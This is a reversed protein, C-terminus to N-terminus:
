SSRPTPCRPWGPSPGAPCPRLADLPPQSCLQRRGAARPADCPSAVALVGAAGSVEQAGGLAGGARGSPVVGGARGSPRWGRARGLGRRRGAGVARARAHGGRRGAAAAGGRRGARAAAGGRPAGQGGSGGRRGGRSSVARPRRVPALHRAAAPPARRRGPRVLDGPARGAPAPRRRRPRPRRAALPLAAAQPQRGGARLRRGPGAGRLEPGAAAFPPLRCRCRSPVPVPSYVPLCGRPCAGRRGAAASRGVVSVELTLPEHELQPQVLPLLLARAAAPGLQAAAAAVFRVAAARVVTCGSRLLRSDCLRRAAALAHRQRLLGRACLAALLDAAQAAAAPDPDGLMRELFPLLTFAVGDPGLAGCVGGLGEYLAGRVEWERSNFLTLLAPLLGDAAGRRGLAAALEALRPLLALKPEVRPGVLVDHVAREVRARLAAVDADFSAEGPAPAPADGGGGAGRRQLGELLARARAALPGLAAAYEAQVAAEAEAPVLSLSPLLYDAFVRAEGAPLGRVAALLPPLARLAACRVAAAPAEAAAAVLHPLARQLRTEDDGCRAACDALQTLLRARAGQSRCGRVASSLLMAMLVLGDDPREREPLAAGDDDADAAAPGAPQRESAAPPTAAAPTPPPAPSARTAAGGGAAPPATNVQQLLNQAEALLAAAQAAVTQLPQQGAATRGAEEASPQAGGAPEPRGGEEGGRARLRDGEGERGAAAGGGGGQGRLRAEGAGEYAAAVAAAREDPSAWLLSAALPGLAQAAAAAAPEGVAADFRALYEAATLRAAPDRQTMHAVLARLGPPLAALAAAPDHAGRRFQLLSSYDFLPRGDCFLEALVCGAAFVDMAPTLPAARAAAPSPAGPGPDFFREPALCCTRRGGTDFFFSFDAQAAPPPPPPCSQSCSM